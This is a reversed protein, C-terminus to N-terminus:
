QWQQQQDAGGAPLHHGGGVILRTGDFRGRTLRGKSGAPNATPGRVRRPNDM